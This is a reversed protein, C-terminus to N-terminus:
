GCLIEDGFIQKIQDSQSFFKQLKKRTEKQSDSEKLQVLIDLLDGDDVNFVVDGNPSITLEIQNKKKQKEETQSM